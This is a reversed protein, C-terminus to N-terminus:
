SEHSLVRRRSVLGNAWHGVDPVDTLKSPAPQQAREPNCLNELLAPDVFRFGSFESPSPYYEASTNIVTSPACAWVGVKPKTGDSLSFPHLAWRHVSMSEVPTLRASEKIFNDLLPLGQGTREFGQYSTELEKRIPEMYEPHLRLDHIVYVITTSLIHVSGFWIGM